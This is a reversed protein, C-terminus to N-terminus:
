PPTPPPPGGGGPPPHTDSGAAVPTGPEDPPRVPQVTITGDDAVRVRRYDIETGRAAMDNRIKDGIVVGPDDLPSVVLLKAPDGVLGVGKGVFTDAMSELV